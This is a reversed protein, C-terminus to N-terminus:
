IMYWHVSIYDFNSYHDKTVCTANDWKLPRIKISHFHYILLYNFYLEYESGGSWHDPNIKSLWFKWFDDPTEPCLFERIEQLIKTNFMMHHCIGSKDIKRVLSEHLLSLHSFYDINYEDSTNYLPVLFNENKEFFEVPRLFFTDADIVLYNELIDPILYAYMKLLQQFYWNNRDKRINIDSLQFPFSSEPIIICGEINIDIATIIYINRFDKINKRCHSIHSFINQYDNPGLPIVIDFLDKSEVKEFTVQPIFSSRHESEGHRRFHILAQERTKIGAKVLDPYNELYQKWNFNKM